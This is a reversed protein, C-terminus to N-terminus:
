QKFAKELVAAAEDYRRVLAPDFALAGRTKVLYFLADHGFQDTRQPNAGSKLLVDIAQPNGAKAAWM